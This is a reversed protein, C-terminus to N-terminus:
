IGQKFETIKGKGNVNCYGSVNKGRIEWNYSMGDKKIDDLSMSGDDISQQETAGITVLADSMPVDFQEVVRMKCSKGWSSILGSATQANAQTTFSLSALIAFAVAAATTRQRRTGLHQLQPTNVPDSAILSANDAHLSQPRSGMFSAGLGMLGEPGQAESRDDGRGRGNVQPM